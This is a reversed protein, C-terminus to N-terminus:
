GRVLKRCAVLLDRAIAVHDEVAGSGVFCRAGTQRELKSPQPDSRADPREQATVGFPLAAPVWQLLDQGFAGARVDVMHLSRATTKCDGARGQASPLALFLVESAELLEEFTSPGVGNARTEGGQIQRSNM